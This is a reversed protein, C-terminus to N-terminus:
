PNLTQQQQQAELEAKLLAITEETFGYLLKNQLWTLKGWVVPSYIKNPKRKKGVFVNGTKNRRKLEMTVARIGGVKNGKGAGMDVMRLYEKFILDGQVSGTSGTNVKHTISDAGEGTEHVDRRDMLTKMTDGVEQLYQNVCKQMFTLKLDGYM